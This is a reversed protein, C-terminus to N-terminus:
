FKVLDKVNRIEKLKVLGELFIIEKWIYRFIVWFNMFCGLDNIQTIFPPNKYQKFHLCSIKMQGIKLPTFVAKLHVGVKFFNFLHMLVFQICQIPTLSILLKGRDGLVHSIYAASWIEYPLFNSLSSNILNLYTNKLLM